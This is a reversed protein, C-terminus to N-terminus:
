EAELMMEYEPFEDALSALEEAYVVAGAQDPSYQMMRKFVDEYKAKFQEYTM